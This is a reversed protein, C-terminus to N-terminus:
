GELTLATLEAIKNDIYLKTDVIYEVSMDAESIITTTPKNTHLQRYANLESETLPIEIPEDLVVLCEFNNEKLFAKFETASGGNDCRVYLVGTSGTYASIVNDVNNYGLVVNNYTFLNCKVVNSKVGFTGCDIAYRYAGNYMQMSVDTIDNATIHLVKQTRVGKNFDIEDRYENLSPLEYSMTLTQNNCPEYPTAVSSFELQANSCTVMVGDGTGSKSLWIDSNKNIETQTTFSYSIRSKGAPLTEVKTNPLTGSSSNWFVKTASAVEVDVSITVNSGKPIHVKKAFLLSWWDASGSSYEFEGFNKGYVGVSFSGSDGVSVLPVPADPTAIVVMQPHIITNITQSASVSLTATLGTITTAITTFEQGNFLYFEQTTGSVQNFKVSFNISTESYKCGTVRYTRGVTLGDIIADKLFKYTIDASATGSVQISGDGLDTFTVGNITQTGISYPYPLANEGLRDQTTKGYLKLGQIQKNSADNIIISNGSKECYISNDLVETITRIHEGLNDYVVGDAGIRADIIEADVSTSGEPLSTFTNMRAELVEIRDVVDDFFSQTKTVDAMNVTAYNTPKNREVVPILIVRDTYKSAGALVYVYATIQKGSQLVIDPIGCRLKDNVIQSQVAYGTTDGKVGFHVMPAGINTLGSIELVQGVDWQYLHETSTIIEIEDTFTVKIM